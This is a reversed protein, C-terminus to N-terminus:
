IMECLTFTETGCSVDNWRPGGRSYNWYLVACNQDTGGDPQGSNWKNYTVEQDDSAYKWVGESQKDTIGLRYGSHPAFEKWKLAVEYQQRRSRPEHIKGRLNSGFVTSCYQQADSFTRFTKDFAYCGSGISYVNNKGVPCSKAMIQGFSFLAIFIPLLGM